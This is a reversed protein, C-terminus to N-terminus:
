IFKKNGSDTPSYTSRETHMQRSLRPSKSGPRILEPSHELTLREIAFNVTASYVDDFKKFGKEITGACNVCSMGSISFQSVVAESSPLTQTETVNEPETDEEQPELTYGEEIIAKTFSETGTLNDDFTVVASNDELLVETGTVGNINELAMKVAKVCHECMMGYVPITETKIM